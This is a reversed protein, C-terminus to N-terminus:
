KGFLRGWFGKKEASTADLSTESEEPVSMVGIVRAMERSVVPGEYEGSHMHNVGYSPQKQDLHLSVSVGAEYEKLYIHFRPYFNGPALRKVYSTEGTNPDCFEAFGARRIM